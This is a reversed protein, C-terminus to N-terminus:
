QRDFEAQLAEYEGEYYREIENFFRSAFPHTIGVVLTAPSGDGKKLNISLSHSADEVVTSLPLKGTPRTHARIASLNDKTKRLRESLHNLKELREQNM